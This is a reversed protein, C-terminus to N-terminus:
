KNHVNELRILVRVPDLSRLRSTLRRITPRRLCILHFRKGYRFNIVLSISLMVVASMLMFKLALELMKPRVSLQAWVLLMALMFVAMRGVVKISAIPDQSYISLLAWILLMLAMAGSLPNLLEALFLSRGKQERIILYISALLAVGLLAQTIAIGAAVMPVASGLSIALVMEAWSLNENTDPNVTKVTNM